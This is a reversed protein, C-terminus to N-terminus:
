IPACFDKIVFELAHVMRQNHAVDEPHLWAGEQHAKLEAELQDRYDKLNLYTIRDATEGDIEIGKIKSM